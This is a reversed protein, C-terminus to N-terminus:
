RQQLEEDLLRAGLLHRQQQRMDVRVPEEAAQLADDEVFQVREHGRLAAIEQRLVRYTGVVEAAEGEGAVVLLHECFADFLDADHGPPTGRPPAIRAGMEQVFVRHRLRQAARLESDDRAWCPAASDSTTSACSRAM